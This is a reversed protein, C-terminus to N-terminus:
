PRNAIINAIPILPRMNYLRPRLLECGIMMEAIRLKDGNQPARTASTSTPTGNGMERAVNKPQKAPANMPAM